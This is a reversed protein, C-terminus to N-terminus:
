FNIGVNYDEEPESLHPFTMEPGIVPDYSPDEHLRIIRERLVEYDMGAVDKRFMVSMTSLRTALNDVLVQAEASADKLENKYRRMRDDSVAGNASMFRKLAEICERSPDANYEGRHQVDMLRWGDVSSRIDLEVTSVPKQDDSVSLIITSGALVQDTYSSVCHHQEAGQRMISATTALEHVTLGNYRVQQTLPGWSASKLRDYKLNWLHDHISYRHYNESVRRLEKTNRPYTFSRIIAAMRDDPRGALEQSMPIVINKEIEKIADVAFHADRMMDCSINKVVNAFVGAHTEKPNARMLVSAIWSATQMEDANMLSAMDPSFPIYTELVQYPLTPMPLRMINNLQNKSLGTHKQLTTLVPQKASIASRVDENRVNSFLHGLVTAADQINLVNAVPDPSYIMNDSGSLWSLKKMNDRDDTFGFYENIEEFDVSMAKRLTKKARKFLHTLNEQLTEKITEKEDQKDFLSVEKDLIVKIIEMIGSLDAGLDKDRCHFEDYSLDKVPLDEAVCFLAPDGKSIREMEDMCASVLYQNDPKEEHPIAMSFLQGKDDVVLMNSLSSTGSKIIIRIGQANDFHQPDLILPIKHSVARSIENKVDSKGDLIIEGILTESINMHFADVYAQPLPLEFAAFVKKILKITENIDSFGVNLKHDSSRQHYAGDLMPCYQVYNKSVHQFMTESLFKAMKGPSTILQPLLCIESNVITTDKSTIINKIDTRYEPILHDCKELVVQYFALREKNTM